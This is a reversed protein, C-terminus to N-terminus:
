KIFRNCFSGRYQLLLLTNWYYFDLSFWMQHYHSYCVFRGSSDHYHSSCPFTVICFDQPGFFKKEENLICFPRREKETNESYAGSPNLAVWYSAFAFLHLAAHWLWITCSCIQTWILIYQHKQQMINSPPIFPM